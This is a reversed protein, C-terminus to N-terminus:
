PLYIGAVRMPGGPETRECVVYFRTQDILYSRTHREGFQGESVQPPGQALRDPLVSILRTHLDGHRIERANGLLMLPVSSAGAPVGPPVGAPVEVLAAEVQPGMARQVPGSVIWILLLVGGAAALWELVPAVGVRYNDM